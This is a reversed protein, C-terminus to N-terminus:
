NKLISLFLQSIFQELVERSGENFLQLNFQNEVISGSITGLIEQAMEDIPEPGLMLLVRTLKMNSHSMDQINIPEELDYISFFPQKIGSDICHFLAMQTDPIGM